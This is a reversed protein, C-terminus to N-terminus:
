VEDLSVQLASDPHQLLPQGETMGGPVPRRDKRHCRVQTRGQRELPAEHLRARQQLLRGAFTDAGAPQCTLGVPDGPEALDTTQLSAILLGPLVRTLREVQGPLELFTPVLRQRQVLKADDM